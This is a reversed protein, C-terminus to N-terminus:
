LSSGHDLGSQGLVISTEFYDNPFENEEEKFNICTQFCFLRWGQLLLINCPRLSLAGATGGQKVALLGRKDFIFNHSGPAKTKSIPKCQGSESSCFSSIGKM